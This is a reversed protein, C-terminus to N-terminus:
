VFLSVPIILVVAAAVVVLSFFFQMKEVFEKTIENFTVSPSFM